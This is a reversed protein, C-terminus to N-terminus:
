RLGWRRRLVWEGCLLAVLALYPWGSERVRRGPLAEGAAGQGATHGAGALRLTGRPRTFEPSYREVTMEGSAAAVEQGARDARVDYNYYGPPPPMQVAVGDVVALVTDLAAPPAGVVEEADPPDSTSGPVVRLSVRVSDADAPALWRLPRGRAAVRSDPRVRDVGAAPSGSMLWSATGSWFSDYLARADGDGFAWRWYGSGLAVAVRRGDTETALLVPRPEGRRDQRAHLPTWWGPAPEASRVSGLPPARGVPTGSLFPAVPSSPLPLAPYWDGPSAEGLRLPLDRLPGGPFLLARPSRIAARAWAPSGGDIGHLVVLDAETIARRAEAESATTGAERGVGVRVFRGEGIALWGRAPVGLARELVPLLFRPEQDARFSVLAVGAPREAITVYASRHDDAPESDDVDLAADLRITGEMGPLPTFRLVATSVRGEPPSAVRARALPQGSWSVTVTVSDPVGEGLRAVGVGVEVGDGSRAWDPADIEALGLNGATREGTTMVELRVDREGVLRAVEHADELAGDTVVVVHRAGAELAARLGPELRSGPAHPELGDLSAVPVAEAAGFVLIRDPSLEGVARRAEDWRTTGDPSPLRMSLSGDVLAVTGGRAADSRVPLAPNFLLLLILAVAGGRLAALVVRGQGAPERRRYHLLAGALAGAALFAYLAWATLDM